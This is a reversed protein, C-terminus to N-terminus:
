LTLSRRRGFTPRAEGVAPAGHDAHPPRGRNRALQIWAGITEDDAGLSKSPIVIKDGVGILGLLINARDEREICLTPQNGWGRLRRIDVSRVASWPLLGSYYMSRVLMGQARVEAAVRGHALWLCRLGGCALLLSLAALFMQMGQPGLISLMLRILGRRGELPTLAFLFTVLGAAIVAIGTGVMFRRRYLLQPSAAWVRGEAPAQIQSGITQPSRPATAVRVPHLAAAPRGSLGSGSLRHIALWTFFQCSVIFALLLSVLVPNHRHGVELSRVVFFLVVGAGNAAVIWSFPRWFRQRGFAGGSHLFVGRTAVVTIVVVVLRVAGHNSGPGIMALVAFLVNMLGLLKWGM